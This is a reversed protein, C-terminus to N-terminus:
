NNSKIIRNSIRLIEILESVNNPHTINNKKLIFLNRTKNIKFFLYIDNIIKNLSFEDEKKKNFKNKILENVLM